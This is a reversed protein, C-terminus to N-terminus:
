PQSAEGFTEAILLGYGAGHVCVTLAPCGGLAMLEEFVMAAALLTKGRQAAPGNVKGRRPSLLGELRERIAAVDGLQLRLGHLCVRRDWIARLHLRGLAQAYGGLGVVGADGGLGPMVPGVHQRVERRLARAEAPTPLHHKVFRRTTQAAGLPVRAVPRIKGEQIRTLQLSTDGLDAVLAQPDPLSGRAAIAGLRGEEGESVVRVEVGEERGLPDLLRARGSAERIAATAVIWVRVDGEARLDQLFLRVAKITDRVASAPLDPRGDAPRVPIPEERDVHFAVGPVIRAQSVRIATSDLDLLLIVRPAPSVGPPVDRIATPSGARRRREDVSGGHDM